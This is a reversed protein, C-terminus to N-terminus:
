KYYYELRLAFFVNIKEVIYSRATGEITELYGNCEVTNAHVENWM